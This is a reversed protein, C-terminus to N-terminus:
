TQIRATAPHNIARLYKRRFFVSFTNHTVQVGTHYSVMDYQTMYKLHMNHGTGM